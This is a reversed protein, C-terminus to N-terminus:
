KVRITGKMTPHLTCIYPFEGRKTFTHTWSGGSAFSGSDWGGAKSTATHAFFDKNVCVVVDGQKINLVEPQFRTADVTVSYTKPKPSRAPASTKATPTAVAKKQSAAARSTVSPVALVCTILIAATARRRFIRHKM